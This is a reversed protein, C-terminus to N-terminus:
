GLNGRGVGEVGKRGGGEGVASKGEM